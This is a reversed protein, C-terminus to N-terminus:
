FYFASRDQRNRRNIYIPQEIKLLLQMISNRVLELERDQAM